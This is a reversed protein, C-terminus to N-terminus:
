FNQCGFPGDRLGHMVGWSVVGLIHAQITDMWWACDRASDAVVVLSERTAEPQHTGQHIIRFAFEDDDGQTTNPMAKMTEKTVSASACGRNNNNDFLSVKEVKSQGDVLLVDKATHASVRAYFHLGNARLVAFYRHRGIRLFGAAFRRPRVAVSSHQKQIAELWQV